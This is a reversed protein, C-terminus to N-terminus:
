STLDNSGVYYLNGAIRFPEVPAVGLNFDNASQPYGIISFCFLFISGFLLRVKLPLM